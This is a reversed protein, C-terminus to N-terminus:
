TAIHRGITLLKSVWLPFRLVPLLNVPATFRRTILLKGVKFGSLFRSHFEMKRPFQSLIGAGVLRGLLMRLRARRGVPSVLDCNGSVPDFKVDLTLTRSSDVRFLPRRYDLLFRDLPKATMTYLGTPLDVDYSGSGDTFVTKSLANGEFRVEVNSVASNSFNGYIRITGHVHCMRPGDVSPASQGFLTCCAAFALITTAFIFKITAM